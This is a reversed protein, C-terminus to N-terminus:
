IVGDQDVPDRRDGSMIATEGNSNADNNIDEKDKKQSKEPSKETKEPCFDKLRKWPKDKEEARKEPNRKLIDHGM